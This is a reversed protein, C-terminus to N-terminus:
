TKGRHGAMKRLYQEFFPRCPRAGQFVADPAQLGVSYIDAEGPWPWEKYM